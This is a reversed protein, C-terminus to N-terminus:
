EIVGLINPANYIYNSFGELHTCIEHITLAFIRKTVKRKDMRQQIHCQIKM